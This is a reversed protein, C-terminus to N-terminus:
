GVKALKVADWIALTNWPTTVGTLEVAEGEKFVHGTLAAGVVLDEVKLHSEMELVDDKTVTTELSQPLRNM